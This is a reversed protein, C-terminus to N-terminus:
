KAEPWESMRRATAENVAAVWANYASAVDKAVAEEFEPVFIETVQLLKGRMKEPTKTGAKPFYLYGAPHMAAENPGYAIPGRTGDVVLFHRTDITIHSFAPMTERRPLQFRRRAREWALRDAFDIPDSVREAFESPLNGSQPIRDTM